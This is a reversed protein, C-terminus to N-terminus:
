RSGGSGEASDLMRRLLGRLQLWEAEDFDRLFANNVAALEAPVKDAVSRGAATLTLEVTRRDGRGRVREVLGKAVLRDVLRTMAGPDVGISQALERAGVTGELRIRWLPHWQAATLGLAAMRQDIQRRMAQVIQHMQYGVSDGPVYRAARYFSRPRRPRSASAMAANDIARAVM